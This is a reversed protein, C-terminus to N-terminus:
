ISELLVEIQVQSEDPEEMFNSPDNLWDQLIFELCTGDSYDVAKGGEDRGKSGLQKRKAELAKKFVNEYAAVSTNYSRTVRANDGTNGMLAQVKGEVETLTLEPAEALLDVILDVLPVNTNTERNFLTDGPNLVTIARLKTVGVPEYDKRAVGCERCVRVIRALYQAKRVKLGLEEEAYEGFSSFGWQAWYTGSQAEDLLEAVDFTNRQIDQSLAQITRRVTAARGAVAEGVNVVPDSM